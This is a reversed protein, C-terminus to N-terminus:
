NTREPLDPLKPAIRRLITLAPTRIEVAVRKLYQASGEEVARLAEYIPRWADKWEKKDLLELCDRVRGNRVAAAFAADGVFLLTSSIGPIKGAQSSERRTVRDGQVAL